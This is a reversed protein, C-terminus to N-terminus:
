AAAHAVIGEWEFGCQEEYAMPLPIQTNAIRGRAAAATTPNIEFAVFHRGLTKAAAPVTGGGTFPDLVLGGPGCLVSIYQLAFAGGDGWEHYQKDRKGFFRNMVSVKKPGKTAFIYPTYGSSINTAGARYGSTCFYYCEIIPPLPVLGAAERIAAEAPHWFPEGVQALLAGGPVLVREALQGLWRYQEIEWYVPDCLILDVSGDPIAEGIQRADGTTVSDYDFPGLKNM